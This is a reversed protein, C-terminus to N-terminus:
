AAASPGVWGTANAREARGLQARWLRAWIGDAVREQCRKQCTSVSGFEAPAAQWRIGTRLVFLIGDLVKRFPVIPRGDTGLPKQPPLLPACEAWLDDPIRWITPEADPDYRSVM